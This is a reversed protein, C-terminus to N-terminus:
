ALCACVRSLPGPRPARPRVGPGRVSPRARCTLLSECLLESGLPWRERGQRWAPDWASGARRMRLGWVENPSSFCVKWLYIGKGLMLHPSACICIVCVRARMACVDRM